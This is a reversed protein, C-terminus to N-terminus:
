NREPRQREELSKYFHDQVRRRTFGESPLNRPRQDNLLKIQPVVSYQENQWRSFGATCNREAYKYDRSMRNGIKVMIEM